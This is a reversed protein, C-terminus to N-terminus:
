FIKTKRKKVFALFKELHSNSVYACILGIVAGALVDYLYHSHSYIRSFGVFGAMLLMSIGWRLGYRLLLFCASVCATATHGSPFSHKGGNPRSASITYKLVNVTLATTVGAAIWRSFIAFDEKILVVATVICPMVIEAVDGTNKVWQSRDWHSSRLPSLIAATFTAFLLLYKMRTIRHM